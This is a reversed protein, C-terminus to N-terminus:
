RDDPKPNSVLSREGKTTDRAATADDVKKHFPKYFEDIMKTWVVKGDAIEDFEKEVKATFNFDLIEKFHNVLYDNVVMGIDTPFLKAKEAGTNEVDIRDTIAGKELKLVNFKRETGPRDEKSVYGRNQVTSIIPAYTSPRGIGLEELKKVLSAETYRALHHTFKETAEIYKEKLVQNITLSPM